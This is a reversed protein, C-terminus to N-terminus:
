LRLKKKIGPPNHHAKEAYYNLSLSLDHSDTLSSKKPNFAGSNGIASKIQKASFAVSMMVIDKSKLKSSDILLVGDCKKEYVLNFIFDQYNDWFTIVCDNYGIEQMGESKLFKKDVILPNQLSVFLPMVNANGTMDGHEAYESALKPCSIAFFGESDSSFRTGIKNKDFMDFSNFTGHFMIQPQGSTNKVKSQRFWKGFNKRGEDTPHVYNGNSALTLCEDNPDLVLKVKFEM